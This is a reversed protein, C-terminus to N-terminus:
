RLYESYKLTERIYKEQDRQTLHNIFKSVDKGDRIAKVFKTASLKDLSDKEIERRYFIVEEYKDENGNRLNKFFIRQIQKLTKTKPPTNEYIEDLITIRFVNKVSAPVFPYHRLNYGKGKYLAGMANKVLVIKGTKRELYKAFMNLAFKSHNGPTGHRAKEPKEDDNLSELILVDLDLDRNRLM